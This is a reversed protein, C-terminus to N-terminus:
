KAIRGRGFPAPTTEHGVASIFQNLKNVVDQASTVRTKRFPKSFRFGSFNELTGDNHLHLRMYRSNELIGNQWEAKPDLAVLIMISVRDAGGLTSKQANVLPAHVGSKIHTIWEDATQIDFVGERLLAEILKTPIKM